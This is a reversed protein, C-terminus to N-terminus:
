VPIGIGPEAENVCARGRFNVPAEAVRVTLFAYGLSRLQKAGDRWRIQATIKQDNM